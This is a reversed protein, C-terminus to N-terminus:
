SSGSEMSLPFNKEGTTSREGKMCSGRGHLQNTLSSHQKFLLNQLLSIQQVLEDIGSAAAPSSSQTLQSQNLKYKVSRLKNLLRNLFSKASFAYRRFCSYRHPEEFTIFTIYHVFKNQHQDAVTQKNRRQQWRFMGASWFALLECGREGSSDWSQCCWSV